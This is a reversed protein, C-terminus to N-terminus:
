ARRRLRRRTSSAIALGLAVLVLSNPEPIPIYVNTAELAAVQGGTLTEDFIWVEDIQGTFDFSTSTFGEGIANMVFATNAGAFTNILAGDRYVRLVNLTSATFAFHHFITDTAISTDYSTGSTNNLRIFGSTKQLYIFDDGTGAEGFSVGGGSSTDRLWFSMSWAEGNLFTQTPISVYGSDGAAYNAKGAGFEGPGPNTPAGTGTVISGHNGNGSSDTVLDTDFTYHAIVSAEAHTAIALHVIAIVALAALARHLGPRGSSMLHATNFSRM